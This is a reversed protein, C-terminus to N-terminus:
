FAARDVEFRHTIDGNRSYVHKVTHDTDDPKVIRTGTKTRGDLSEQYYCKDALTSLIWDDM